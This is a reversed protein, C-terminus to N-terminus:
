RDCLKQRPENEIKKEKKKDFHRKKVGLKQFLFNICTVTIIVSIRKLQLHSLNRKGATFLCKCCCTARLDLAAEHPNEFTQTRLLHHMLPNVQQSLLNLITLFHVHFTCVEDCSHMHYSTFLRQCRNAGSPNSILSILHCAGLLNVIVPLAM